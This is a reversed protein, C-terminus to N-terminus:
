DTCRTKHQLQRLEDRYDKAMEIYAMINGLALGGEVFINGEVIM